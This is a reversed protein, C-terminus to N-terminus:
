TPSTGPPHGPYEYDARCAQLLARLDQRLEEVTPRGVYWWGNYVRHVTLDPALSVTYPIAIPGHKPDTLDVIDLERIARREHDSLFPFGVGLGARFAGAVDPPDVSVAALHCYNVRLEEDLDRYHRL